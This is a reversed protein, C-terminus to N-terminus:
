YCLSLFRKEELPAFQLLYEYTEEVDGGHFENIEAILELLEEDDVEDFSGNLEVMEILKADIEIEEYNMKYSEEDFIKRFNLM